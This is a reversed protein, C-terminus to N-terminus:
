AVLMFSAFRIVIQVANILSDNFLPRLSEGVSSLCDIEREIIRSKLISIRISFHIIRGFIDAIAFFM